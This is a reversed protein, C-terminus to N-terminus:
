LSDIIDSLDAIVNEIPTILIDDDKVTINARGGNKLCGFLIEKSLQKKVKDQWLRNFPRAGFLPDYGNKAFWERAETTLNVTINKDVLLQNTKDFEANIILYMEVMTLKNFKVINDIRNRFEPAFFKKVAEDVVTDTNSNQHGFGIRNKESDAAGLNSTMILIVNSFDITDGKSSTCRGDDMVQLLITYIEPAAKEIEDLLLVCNPNNKIESILLGDGIKGEGFGVYGPPAGILKSVSHSEQYESMDFRVLKVGLEESLRKCVYTKGVGTAGLFLFNGIPKGPERLGSKSINIAEVLADIALDQGFVKNKVRAALNELATNEKVDIMNLPIKSVKSVVQLIMDQDVITKDALKARAGASDMIDIAKDPLFKNKMYRVSLDVCEDLTGPEYTVKHFEAYYKEIGKLIRKSDEVSPPHIDVKQFRRLLAKDKEFHTVYEDETTAGVCMLKGKALLPKLMNAADMASGSSSGAGMIMHIEDIFLIINGTKEIENLVGKLREEFDGRFKTGALLSAIDLSYVTKDLLAKPVEKDVIKKALGELVATKGCGPHGVLVSNNKKRRAAIEIIETIEKERGIVPDVLGNKSDENLNRCYQSLFTEDPTKGKEMQKRLFNALKERTVGNIKLQYCAHSEEESLISILLGELSLESQSSVLVQTLARQWTRQVAQTRKVPLHRLHEPKKNSPDELQKIMESKIKNPQAGIGLLLDSIDKESLLSLLIHELTVYEHCNDQALNLAREVMKDVRKNSMKEEKFTL